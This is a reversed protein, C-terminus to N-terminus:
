HIPVTLWARKRLEARIEAACAESSRVGTNVMMDYAFFPAIKVEAGGGLVRLYPRWDLQKGKLSRQYADCAQLDSELKVRELRDVYRDSLAPLYMSFYMELPLALDRHEYRRPSQNRSRVHELLSSLPCYVVVHFARYRRSESRWHEVQEAKWLTDDLLIFDYGQRAALEVQRRTDQVIFAQGGRAFESRLSAELAAPLTARYSILQPLDHLPRPPHLGRRRLIDQYAHFVLKEESVFTAHALSKELARGISSKGASGTGNLLLLVPPTDRALM